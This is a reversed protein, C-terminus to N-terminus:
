GAMFANFDECFPVIVLRDDDATAGRASRGEHELGPIHRGCDRRGTTITCATLPSHMRRNRPYHEIGSCRLSPISRLFIHFSAPGGGSRAVRRNLSLIMYKTRHSDSGWAHMRVVTTNLWVRDMCPIGM